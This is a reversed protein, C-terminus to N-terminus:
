GWVFFEPSLLIALADTHMDIVTVAVSRQKECDKRILVVVHVEILQFLRLQM